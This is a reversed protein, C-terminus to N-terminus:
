TSLAPGGTREDFSMWVRRRDVRRLHAAMAAVRRRQDATAVHQVVAVVITVTSAIRPGRLAAVVLAGIRHVAGM